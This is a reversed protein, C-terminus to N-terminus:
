YSRSKLIFPCHGRKQLTECGETRAITREACVRCPRQECLRSCPSTWGAQWQAAGDSHHRSKVVKWGSTLSPFPWLLTTKERKKRSWNRGHSRYRVPSVNANSAVFILYHVKSKGCPKEHCTERRGPYFLIVVYGPTAAAPRFFFISSSPFYRVWGGELHNDVCLCSKVQCKQLPIPTYFTRSLQLYPPYRAPYFELTFPTKAWHSHYM